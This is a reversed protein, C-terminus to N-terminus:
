ANGGFPGDRIDDFTSEIFQAYDELWYGVIYCELGKGRIIFVRWEEKRGFLKAHLLAGVRYLFFVRMESPNIRRSRFWQRLVVGDDDVRAGIVFPSMLALMFVLIAVMVAAVWWPASLFAMCTGGLVGLAVVGAAGVRLRGYRTLGYERM